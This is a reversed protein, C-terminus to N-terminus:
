WQDCYIGLHSGAYIYISFTIQLHVKKASYTKKEGWMQRHPINAYIDVLIQGKVWPKQSAGPSLWSQLLFKFFFILSQSFFVSELIQQKKEETSKIVHYEIVDTCYTRKGAWQWSRERM